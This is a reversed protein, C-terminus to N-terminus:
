ANNATRKAPSFDEFSDIVFIIGASFLVLIVSLAFAQTQLIDGPSLLQSILVPLTENSQRVLFSSAGFEGLSVAACIAAASVITRRIIPLDITRWTQWTTAGLVSSAQRLSRPIGQLVPTIMRGALPLA